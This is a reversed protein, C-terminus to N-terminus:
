VPPQQYFDDPAGDTCVAVQVEVSAETVDLFFPSAKLTATSLDDHDGFGCALTPLLLGYAIGRLRAGRLPVPGRRAPQVSQHAAEATQLDAIVRYVAGFYGVGTSM